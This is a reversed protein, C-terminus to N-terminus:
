SGTSLFVLVQRKDLAKIWFINIWILSVFTYMGLVIIADRASMDSMMMVYRDALINHDQYLFVAHFSEWAFNFLYSFVSIVGLIIAVEHVRKM